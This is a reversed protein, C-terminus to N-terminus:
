EPLPPLIDCPRTEDPHTSLTLDWARPTPRTPTTSPKPPRGPRPMLLAALAAATALAALITRRRRRRPFAPRDPIAALLRAELDAPVDPSPLARLAAELPDPRRDPTKRSM